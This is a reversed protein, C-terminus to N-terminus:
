LSSEDDIDVLTQTVTMSTSRTIQPEEPVASETVDTFVPESPVNIVIVETMRKANDIATFSDKMYDFGEEAPVSTRKGRLLDLVTISVPSFNYVKEETDTSTVYIEGEITEDIYSVPTYVAVATLETTMVSMSGYVLYIVTKGDKESLTLLSNEGARVIVSSSEAEAKERTTSLAVSRKATDVSSSTISIGGKLTLTYDGTFTFVSASLSVVIFLITILSISKKMAPDKGFKIM